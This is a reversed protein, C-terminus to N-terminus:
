FPCETIPFDNQKTRNTKDVLYNQQIYELTIDDNYETLFKELNDSPNKYKFNEKSLLKFLIHTLSM